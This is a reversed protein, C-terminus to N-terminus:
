KVVSVLNEFQKTLLENISLKSSSFNLIEVGVLQGKKNIDIILGENVESSEERKGGSIKIYAADAQSDYDIVYKSM